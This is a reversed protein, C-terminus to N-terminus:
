GGDSTGEPLTEAELIRAGYREITDIVPCILARKLRCYTEKRAKDSVLPCGGKCLPLAPCALCAARHTRTTDWALIRRLYEPYPTHIDGAKQRINHCPYLNGALDLNLTSIGNGCVATERTWKGDQKIYFDALRRILRGIYALQTHNQPPSEGAAAAEMYMMTMRRMDHAVRAYDLDLLWKAAIGTDFIADLNIARLPYGHIREYEDSINQFAELIEFPYAKSSIVGSLGLREIRLIKRKIEPHAFVDFRRTEKTNYGDWSITVHFENANFFDVMEDTMARGNCITSCTCRIRRRKTEAVIERMVPFYILPEGGYFLLHIGSAGNEESLEALFDYIEPNIDGSLPEHVLPHQLCYACNMNCYNGQMIFVTGAKRRLITM